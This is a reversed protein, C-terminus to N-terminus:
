NLNLAKLTEIIPEQEKIHRRVVSNLGYFAQMVMDEFPESDLIFEDFSDYACGGLYETFTLDGLGELGVTVHAIFWASDDFRSLRDLIHAVDRPDDFCEEPPLDEYEYDFLISVKHGILNGLKDELQQIKDLSEKNLYKM